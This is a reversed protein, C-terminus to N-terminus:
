PQAEETRAEVAAKVKQEVIHRKDQIFIELALAGRELVPYLKAETLLPPPPRDPPTVHRALVVALVAILAARVFGYAMGAGRDLAGIEASKHLAAALAKSGLGIAVFVILFLLGATVVVELWAPNIFGLVSLSASNRLYILVAVAAGVIGLATFVERIIGRAFGMLSSLLVVVIVTWDFANLDPM